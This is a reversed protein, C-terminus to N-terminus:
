GRLLELPKVASAGPFVEGDVAARAIRLHDQLVAKFLARLDTTTRLDRGEFRDRPALGPWDAIVRGGHVAGGLVFAAGGTGHDTGMTGNVAVERGFETVVVILTRSWTQAHASLVERLTAISADLLRLNNVLAGQPAAQNAHTDWGGLELVAAQPGNSRQLFEGARRALLVAQARLGGGAMATDRGPMADGERL